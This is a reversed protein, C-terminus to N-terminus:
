AAAPLLAVPLQLFVLFTILCLCSHEAVLSRRTVLRLGRILGASSFFSRGQRAAAATTSFLRSADRPDREARGAAAAMTPGARDVVLGRRDLVGAPEDVQLAPVEIRSKITM